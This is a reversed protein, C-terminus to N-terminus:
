EYALSERVSVQTARLAPWLSALASLAAVTGDLDQALASRQVFGVDTVVDHYRYLGAVSEDYFWRPSATFLEFRAGSLRHLAEMMASARAAHGFGHPSVFVAIQPPTM